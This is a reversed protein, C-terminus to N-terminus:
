CRTHTVNKHRDHALALFLALSMPKVQAPVLM